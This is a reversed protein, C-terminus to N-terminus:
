LKKKFRVEIEFSQWNRNEFDILSTDIVSIAFSQRQYGTSPVINFAQSYDIVVGDRRSLVVEYTAHPGLDRDLVYLESPNLLTSFSQELIRITEKEAPFFIEPLNDNVDDM